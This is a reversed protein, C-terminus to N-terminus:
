SCQAAAYHDSYLGGERMAMSLQVMELWWPPVRSLLRAARSRQGMEESPLTCLCGSHLRASTWTSLTEGARARRWSTNHACDTNEGWAATVTTWTQRTIWWGWGVGEGGDGGSAAESPPQQCRRPIFGDRTSGTMPIAAKYKKKVVRLFCDRFPRGDKRAGSLLATSLIFMGFVFHVKFPRSPLRESRPFIGFLVRLNKMDNWWIVHFWRLFFFFSWHRWVLWHCLSFIVFPLSLPLKPIGYLSLLLMKGVICRGSLFLACWSNNKECHGADM